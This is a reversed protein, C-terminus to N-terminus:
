DALPSNLERYGHWHEDALVPDVPDAMLGPTSPQNPSLNKPAQVGPKNEASLQKPQPEAVQKVTQDVANM